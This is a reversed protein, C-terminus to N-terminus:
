NMLKMYESRLQKEFAVKENTKKNNNNNNNNCRQTNKNNQYM